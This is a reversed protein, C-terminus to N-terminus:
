DLIETVQVLLLGTKLGSMDRQMCCRYLETVVVRISKYPMIAISSKMMEGLGNKSFFSHETVINWKKSIGEDKEDDKRM